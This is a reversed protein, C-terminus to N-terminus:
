FPKAVYDFAGAKMADVADRVSSLATMLIVPLHPDLERIRALVDFGSLGPMRIDMIVLTPRREIIMRLADDGRTAARAEFGHVKLLHTLVFCILEEDDVILIEPRGSDPMIRCRRGQNM